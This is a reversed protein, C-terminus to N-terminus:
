ISKEIVLTTLCKYNNQIKKKKLLIECLTSTFFAVSKDYKKEKKKIIFLDLVM